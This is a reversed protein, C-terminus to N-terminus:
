CVMIDCVFRATNIYMICGTIIRFDLGDEWLFGSTRQVDLSSYTCLTPFVAGGVFLPTAYLVKSCFKFPLFSWLRVILSFYWPSFSGDLAVISWSSAAAFFNAPAARPRSVKNAEWKYPASWDWDTSQAVRGVGCM